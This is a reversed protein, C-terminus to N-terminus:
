APLAEVPALIEFASFFYAIEARATEPADSGHVANREIDTGFDGRITGPAAKTSDTPGMLERNKAIADPGELVSMVVPGSTMFRVLDAFFPRSKHVAYFGKAQAETLRVMKLAIVRLGAAEFRRLIEGAAGKATADPKVISLTRQIEPM